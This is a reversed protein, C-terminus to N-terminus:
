LGIEFDFEDAAMEGFAGDDQEQYDAVLQDVEWSLAVEMCEIRYRMMRVTAWPILLGLTLASAAINSLQIWAFRGPRLNCSFLAQDQFRTHNWCYNTVMAKLIFTGLFLLVYFGFIPIYIAFNVNEPSGEGSWTMGAISFVLGVMLVIMLAFAAYYLKFFFRPVGSFDSKVGGFSVHKFFYEKQRFIVYPTALGLTIIILLPLGM